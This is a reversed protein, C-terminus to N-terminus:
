ASRKRWVCVWQSNLFSSFYLTNSYITFGNNYAAINAVQTGKATVRECASKSNHKLNIKMIGWLMKHEGCVPIKVANACCCTWRRNSSSSSSVDVSNHFKKKFLCVSVWRTVELPQKKRERENKLHLPLLLLLLHWSYSQAHVQM